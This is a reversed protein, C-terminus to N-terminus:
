IFIDSIPQARSPDSITLFRRCGQSIKLQKDSVIFRFWGLNEEVALYVVATHDRRDLPEVRCMFVPGESKDLHFFVCEKTLMSLANDSLCIVLCFGKKCVALSGPSGWTCWIRDTYFFRLCLQNTLWMIHLLYTLLIIDIILWGYSIFSIHWGYIFHLYM